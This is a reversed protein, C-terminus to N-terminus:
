VWSCGRSPGDQASRLQKHCLQPKVAPHFSRVCLLANRRQAADHQVSGRALGSRGSRLRQHTRVHFALTLQLPQASPTSTPTNTKSRDQSPVREGRCFANLLDSSCFSDELRNKFCGPRKKPALSKRPRLVPDTKHGM